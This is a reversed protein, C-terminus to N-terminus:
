YPYPDEEDTIDDWNNWPKKDNDTIIWRDRFVDVDINTSCTILFHESGESDSYASIYWKQYFKPDAIPDFNLVDDEISFESFEAYYAIESKYAGDLLTRAESQM